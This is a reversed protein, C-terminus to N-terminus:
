RSPAQRHPVPRVPPPGSEPSPLELTTVEAAAWSPKPILRAREAPWRLKAFRAIRAPDSEELWLTRLAAADAPRGEPDPRLAADIAQSWRAPADPRLASLPQRIGKSAREYAEAWSRAPFASTGAALRFLLAGLSFVDARADVRRASRYQEPAMYGPTGLMLGSRTIPEGGGSLAAGDDLLLKAIGLDTILANVRGDVVEVLVNAPKLDRHVTGHQHMVAAGSLVGAALADIEPVTLQQSRLGEVSPGRVLDMVLALLGEQVVLDTVPVLNPHRLNAQLRGERMLRARRTAADILLVKLAHESGLLVHRVRYVAGVGGRGIPSMLEYRDIRDGVRPGSM